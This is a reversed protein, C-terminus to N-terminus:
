NAEKKIKIKYKNKNIAKFIIKQVEKNTFGNEEMYKEFMLDYEEQMIEIVEEKEEFLSTQISNEERLEVQNEEKKQESLRKFFEEAQIKDKEPEIYYDKKNLAEYDKYVAKEELILQSFYAPGNEIHQNNKVFNWQEQLYNKIY